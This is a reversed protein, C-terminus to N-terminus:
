VKSYKTETSYGRKKAPSANITGHWSYYIFPFSCPIYLHLLTVSLKLCVHWIICVLNTLVLEFMSLFLLKPFYFQSCNGLQSKTLMDLNWFSLVNIGFYNMRCHGFLSIKANIYYNCNININGSSYHTNTSLTYIVQSLRVNRLFSFVHHNQASARKARERM